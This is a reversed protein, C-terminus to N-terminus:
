KSSTAITTAHFMWWIIIAYYDKPGKNYLLELKITAELVDM